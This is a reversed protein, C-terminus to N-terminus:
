CKSLSFYFGAGFRDPELEKIKYDWRILNSKEGGGEVVDVDM